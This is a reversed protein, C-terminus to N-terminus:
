AENAIEMKKIKGSEFTYLHKVVGDFLVSDQLDKVIQHVEVELRGDSREFIKIPFVTPNIEKWQRAWYDGVNKTGAVFGGEWGNQWEVGDHMLQLITDVDRENFANYAREIVHQYKEM